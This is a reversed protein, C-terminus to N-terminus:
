LRSHLIAIANIAGTTSESAPVPAQEKVCISARMAGSSIM